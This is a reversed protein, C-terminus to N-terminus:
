DNEPDQVIGQFQQGSSSFRKSIASIAFKFIIELHDIDKFYNQM